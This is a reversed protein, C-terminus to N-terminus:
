PQLKGLNSRLDILVQRFRPITKSGGDTGKVLAAIAQELEFLTRQVNAFAVKGDSLLPQRQVTPSASSESAASSEDGSDSQMAVDPRKFPLVVHDM